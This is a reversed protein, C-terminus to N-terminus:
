YRIYLIKILIKNPVRNRFLHELHIYLGKKKDVPVVIVTERSFIIARKSDMVLFTWKLDDDDDDDDSSGSSFAM